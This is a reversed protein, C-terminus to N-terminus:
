GNIAKLMKQRNAELKDTPIFYRKFKERAKRYHTVDFGARRLEPIRSRLNASVGNIVAQTNTLEGTNLLYRLIRCLESDKFSPKLSM